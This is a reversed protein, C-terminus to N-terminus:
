QPLPPGEALLVGLAEESLGEQSGVRVGTRWQQVSPHFAWKPAGLMRRPSWGAGAPTLVPPKGAGRMGPSEDSDAGQSQEQCGQASVQAGETPLAEAERVRM